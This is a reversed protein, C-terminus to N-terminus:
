WCSVLVTMDAAKFTLTEPEMFAAADTTSVSIGAENLSGLIAEADTIFNVDQPLVRANGAPRPLLMGLVAGGNDFIPGGADGEDANMAIRKVHEEGDLGRLDALVGFTMTPASLLGGFPYGAVAVQSQLRPVGIQFEAIDLPALADQPRLVAIGLDEDVHAVTATHDADLTIQECGQVAEAVTLVSGQADIYFGSRSLAPRRVQLGSVLDIAQSEDPLAIAPDLVGEVIAFSDKMEALIRTRREDDGAPWILSFGKIHGDRLEVQTYSHIDDNVGELTFSRDRRQREGELPVIELTQLIEYLGFLRDQNGEQSILLVQAQLDGKADYRAFPPEYESFGVVGTPIMIEIGAAEDRVIQLDMGDLVANYQAFLEARQATTLVGTTEHNNAQQWDRMSQRTGRGYSGDIAASYFGAWQLAIQLDKKQDRTLQSESAQAERLTEDPVQIPDPAAIEPAAQATTDGTQADNSALNEPLPQADTPAGVGVPWFQQQFQDGTVIYADRPIAGQARLQRLAVNADDPSYPGLAIGYWGSGLYYGNVDPLSGAYERVKNQAANLTRQAEIQVYVVDQGFAPAALAGAMSAALIIGSFGRKM